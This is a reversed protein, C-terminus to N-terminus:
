ITSFNVQSFTYFFKKPPKAIIQLFENDISSKLLNNEMIEPAKELSEWFNLGFDNIKQLKGAFKTSLCIHYISDEILRNKSDYKIIRKIGLLKFKALLGTEEKLKRSAADAPEEGPKIKGSVGILIDGYFPHRLRKQFLLKKEKKNVCFALVSVKFYGQLTGDLSLKFAYKKGSSSLSYFNDTKVLFKKDLLFKLHYNFLDNNIGIPKLESYRLSNGLLARALIQDQIYSSM